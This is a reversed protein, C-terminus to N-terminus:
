RRSSLDRLVQGLAAADVIPSACAGAVCLYVCARGDAPTKGAVSPSLRRLSEGAPGSKHFMIIKNPLFPLHIERLLSEVAPDTDEASIVIEVMPGMARGLAAVWRPHAAPNSRIPSSVAELVRDARAAWARDGTLHSLRVFVDAAMANGSPVAGDQIQRPRAVLPEADGATMWYVGGSPDGYGSEIRRAMDLARELWLADFTTEYLWVCADALCALDDLTAGIAAQGDRYRHRPAGDPGTMRRFIFDAARVATRVRGPEGLVAGARAFAGIMLGNWDTLVKDDLHPAPRASRAALLARRAAELRERVQASTLAFRAATEELSRAAYLVNLGVFEARPDNEVNGDERVGYRCAVIEADAGLVDRLETMSWLYYAGESPHTAAPSPLSDADEASLFGGEVGLLRSEVYDLVGRVVAADQPRGGLQYADLYAHTLLAQDYLMIEFHPLFWRADTSYRHFGGGIQDRLGGAAMADLTGFVMDRAPQSGIRRAAALLASLAHARPFKPAGGFGGRDADYAGLHHEIYRRFVQEDLPQPGATEASSKKLYDAASAASTEIEARRTRWADALSELLTRFGPMGYRDQPPFYTGGYFPKGEPTVFVSMPWGGHGNVATVYDMYLHDIDPREERDVKVPVFHRNLLEAVATDEFSEREMVHCWHCTSYGISVFLPKDERRAREFAEAAWPHWDVPNYAHQLLYPSKEAILRNRPRGSASM